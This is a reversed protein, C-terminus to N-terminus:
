ISSEGIAAPPWKPNSLDLSCLLFASSRSRQVARCSERAVACCRQSDRSCCTATKYHRLHLIYCLCPSSRSRQVARCSECSCSSSAVACCRQSDRSCCTAMQRHGSAFMLLLLLPYPPSLPLSHSRQLVGQGSCLLAALGQLLLQIIRPQDSNSALCSKCPCLVKHQMHGSQTLAGYPCSRSSYSSLSARCCRASASALSSASRVTNISNIHM